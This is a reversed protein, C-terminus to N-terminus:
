QAPQAIFGTQRASASDRDRRRAERKSAGARAIDQRRELAVQAIGFGSLDQEAGGHATEDARHHIQQAFAHGPQMDKIEANGGIM